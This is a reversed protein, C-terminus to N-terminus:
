AARVPDRARRGDLVFARCGAVDFLRRHRLGGALEAPVVLVARLRLELGTRDIRDPPGALVYFVPGAHPRSGLAPAPAGPGGEVLALRAHAAPWGALDVGLHVPRREGPLLLECGSRGALELALSAAARVATDLLEPPGPSRADLVVMPGTSGDARLRRELLGAGRALASWHIRSAPAGPRYPRLGDVETAAFAEAAAAEAPSEARNGLQEGIWSVRETRPLVLLEEAAGNGSRRVRTLGLPDQLSLEPQEFRRRGRRPFRAVVRVTSRANGRGPPRRSSLTMPGGTFEDRVQGGPIGLPGWRVEITAELPQEEEVRDGLLRRSVSAGRSALRIWLPVVAGLVTLAAGPVLVVTADFTLATLILVLGALLVRSM